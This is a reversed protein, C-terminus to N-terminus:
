GKGWDKRWHRCHRWPPAAHATKLEASTQSAFGRGLRLTRRTMHSEMRAAILARTLEFEVRTAEHEARFEPNQMQKERYKELDDMRIAGKWKGEAKMIQKTSKRLCAKLVSGRIHKLVKM